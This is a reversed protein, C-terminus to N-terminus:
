YYVDLIARADSVSEVDDQFNLNLNAVNMVFFVETDETNSDPIHLTNIFGTPEYLYSDAIDIDNTYELYYWFGLSTFAFVEGTHRHKQVTTGPALLMYIVWLGSEIHVQLLQLKFSGKDISPLVSTLTFNPLDAAQRLM